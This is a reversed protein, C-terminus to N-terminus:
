SRKHRLKSAVFERHPIHLLRRIKRMLHIEHDDLHRDAYVVQWMSDVLLIREKLTWNRNILMTFGHLDTGDRVQSQALSLLKNSEAQTLQFQKRVLKQILTQEEQGLKYDAMMTEYILAAVALRLENKSDEVVVSDEPLEIKLVNHYKRKREAEASKRKKLTHNQVIRKEQLKMPGRYNPNWQDNSPRVYHSSTGAGWLPNVDYSNSRLARSNENGFVSDYVWGAPLNSPVPASTVGEEQPRSVKEEVAVLSTHQTVLHHSLGLEIVEERVADVSAGEALNSLLTEIKTRAYLRDIGSHSRGGELKFSVAWPKDGRWGSIEVNSGLQSLKAAIVIPEGTYLDPIRKPYYEVAKSRWDVQIKTLVPTELKSFLENMKEKVENIRGIYTFTGRGLEAAKRM